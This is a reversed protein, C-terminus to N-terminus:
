HISKWGAPMTKRIPLQYYFDALSTTSIKDFGYVEMLVNISEKLFEIVTIPYPDESFEQIPKKEFTLIFLDEKVHELKPYVGLDNVEATFLDRPLYESMDMNFLKFERHSQIPHEGLEADKNINLYPISDHLEKGLINVSRLLSLCPNNVHSSSVSNVLTTIQKQYYKIMDETLICTLGEKVIEPYNSRVGRISDALWGPVIFVKADLKEFM